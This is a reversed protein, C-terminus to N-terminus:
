ALDMISPKFPRPKAARAAKPPGSSRRRLVTLVAAFEHLEDISLNDHRGNAKEIIARRRQELDVPSMAEYSKLDLEPM